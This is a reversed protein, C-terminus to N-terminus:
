EATPIHPERPRQALVPLYKFLYSSVLHPRPNTQEFSPDSIGLQLQLPRVVQILSRQATM